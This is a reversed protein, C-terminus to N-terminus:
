PNVSNALSSPFNKKVSTSQRDTHNTHFYYPLKSPASWDLDNQALIQLEYYSHPLLDSLVYQLLGTSTPPQLKSVPLSLNSWNEAPKWSTESLGTTVLRRYRLQYRHIPMGGDDPQYWTVIFEASQQGVNPEVSIIDVSSPSRLDATTVPVQRLPGVGVENVAAVSLLYVTSPRLDKLWIEEGVDFHHVHFENHVEFGTIELGGTDQPLGFHLQISTTRSVVVTVSELQGPVDAKRLEIHLFNYGFYNSTRCTYLGYIWQNIDVNNVTNDAEPMSIQLVSVDVDVAYVHFTENNQSLANDHHYWTFLAHPRADVRCTVNHAVPQGPWAYYVLRRPHDEDDILQPLYGVSVAAQRIDSGLRNRTECSYQGADEVTVHRIILESCGPIVERVYIRGDEYTWHPRYVLESNNSHNLRQFTLSPAPRGTSRCLLTATMGRSEITSKFEYIVPTNHVKVTREAAVRGVLNKAVCLYKGEHSLKLAKFRLEGSTPDVTVDDDDKISDGDKFFEYTIPSSGTANCWVSLPDGERGSIEVLREDVYSPGAYLMLDIKEEKFLGTTEVLAQCHYSGQDSSTINTIYLGEISQEYHDDTKIKRSGFRWSIIPSPDAYARCPMLVSDGVSARVVAPM